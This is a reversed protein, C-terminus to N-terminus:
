SAGGQEEIQQTDPQMNWSTVYIGLPNKLVESETPVGRQVTVMVVWAAAGVQEGALSYIKEVWRVQWTDATVRNVTRVDVVRTEKQARDFPKFEDFHKQFIPVASAALFNYARAYNSQIVAPDVSVTRIWTFFMYLFYQTDADNVETRSVRFVDVAARKDDISVIYPVAKPLSGLWVAGCTSMIMGCVSVFAIKQWKRAQQASSGIRDDWVKKAIEYPLTVPDDTTFDIKEPM